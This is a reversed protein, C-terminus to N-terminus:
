GFAPRPGARNRVALRASPRVPPGQLGHQARAIDEDKRPCAVRCRPAIFKPQLALFDLDICVCLVFRRLRNFKNLHPFPVLFAALRCDASLAKKAALTHTDTHTHEDSDYGAGHRSEIERGYIM